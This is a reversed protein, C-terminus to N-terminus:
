ASTLRVHGTMGGRAAPVGAWREAGSAFAAGPGGYSMRSLGSPEGGERDVVDGAMPREPEDAAAGAHVAGAHVPVAGAPAPHGPAGVAAATAVAGRSALRERGRAVSALTRDLLEEFGALKGDVYSDIQSRMDDSAQRAAAMIAAADSEARVVVASGSALRAGERRGDAVIAAARRHADDIIAESELLVRDADALREPLRARLDELAELLEARNLVCSASLPMARAGEVLVIILDLREALDDM